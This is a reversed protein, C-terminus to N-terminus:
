TGASRLYHRRYPAGRPNPEERVEIAAGLAMVAAALRDGSLRALARLDRTTCGPRQAIRPLTPMTSLSGVPM